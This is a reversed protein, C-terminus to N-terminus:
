WAYRLVSYLSWEASAATFGRTALTTLSWRRALQWSVYPSLEHSEPTFASPAARYDYFAGAALRPSLNTALGLQAYASNKLGSYRESKGRRNYGLSAFGLVRGFAQSLDLQLQYDLEGTGLGKDADATPFKVDLRLDIFPAGSAIPDFRYIVSGISDGLGRQRSRQTGAVARDLGGLNILVAGPGDVQLAPLLLQLGWNGRNVEYGLPLYVIDTTLPLGFDGSAVYAGVSLAQRIEAAEQAAAVTLPLGLLLLSLLSRPCPLKLKPPM